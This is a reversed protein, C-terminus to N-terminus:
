QDTPVLEIVYGDLPIRRVSGTKPSYLIILNPTEFVVRGAYEAEKDKFVRVCYARKQASPDPALSRRAARDASSLVPACATPEIVYEDIYKAGAAMGIMPVFMLLAFAFLALLVAGWILLPGAVVTAVGYAVLALSRGLLSKPRVVERSRRLYARIKNEARRTTNGFRGAMACWGAVAAAMALPGILLFSSYAMVQRYASWLTAADFLESGQRLAHLAALKSFLILDFANSFTLGNPLGLRIDAALSVGYGLLAAITPIGGVIMALLPLGAGKAAGTAGGDPLRGTAATSNRGSEDMPPTQDM